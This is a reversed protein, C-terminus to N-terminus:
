KVMMMKKIRTIGGAKMVAFYIGNAQGSADWQISYSGTEKHGEFLTTVKQGLINFVELTIHCPKGISYIIFTDLIKVSSMCTEETM